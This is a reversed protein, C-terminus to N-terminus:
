ETLLKEIKKVTADWSTDSLVKEYKKNFSNTKMESLLLKLTKTFSGADKVINVCHSYDRVVDYVPTSIIPKNAAMYELTKTPSIFRTSENMAFPMMAIRFAKLYNPLDKYSKMGLYYINQARPLEEEQIKALPGIMVFSIAPNQMAVQQLLPLDIREDIVGYYGVIPQPIAAIDEPVSIGNLSKSFHEQEVSSPFCHVNAHLKTKSEFLSKGGTFVIGAKSLLKKEQEILAVPANKFLSLEDMCDYVITNFSFEPLLCEFAASYFWGIEASRKSIYLPLINKIDAISNVQPQLVTLNESVHLVNATNQEGPSFPVPEEIFLVRRKLALRSILHQPRQYVFEWRLHCFVVMDYDAPAEKRVM